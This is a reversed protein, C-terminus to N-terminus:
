SDTKSKKPEKGGTIVSYLEEVMKKAKFNLGKVDLTEFRPEGDKDKVFRRVTDAQMLILDNMTFKKNEDDKKYEDMFENQADEIEGLSPIQIFVNQGPISELEHEVLESPKLAELLSDGM